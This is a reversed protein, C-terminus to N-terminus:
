LSNTNTGSCQGSKSLAASSRAISSYARRSRRKPPRAALVPDYATASGAVAPSPAGPSLDLRARRTIAASTSAGSAIAAAQNPPQNQSPRAVIVTSRGTRRIASSRRFDAATRASTPIKTSRPPPRTREADVVELDGVQAHRESQKRHEQERRSLVAGPRRDPEGIRGRRQKGAHQQPAIRACPNMAKIKTNATTHIVSM